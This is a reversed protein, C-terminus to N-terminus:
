LLMTSDTGEILESHPIHGAWREVVLIGNNLEVYKSWTQLEGKTYLEDESM